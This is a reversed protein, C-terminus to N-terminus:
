DRRASSVTHDRGEGALWRKTFEKKIWAWRKSYEADGPPLSWIAHPHDPLLVLANTTFPWRTQCDRLIQGLLKIAAENAFLPRRRDVVVTFFYSGGAVYWRRYDPM